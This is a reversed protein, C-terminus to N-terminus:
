VNALEYVNSRRGFGFWVTLITWVSRFLSIRGVIQRKRKEHRVKTAGQDCLTACPREVYPKRLHAVFFESLHLNNSTEYYDLTLSVQTMETM